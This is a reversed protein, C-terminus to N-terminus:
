PRTLILRKVSYSRQSGSQPPLGRCELGPWGNKDDIGFSKSCTRTLRAIADDTPEFHNGVLQLIRLGYESAEARRLLWEPLAGELKNKSLRLEELMPLCEGDESVELSGGLGNDTLDLVQLTSMQCLNDGDLKGALSNNQLSLAVVVCSAEITNYGSACQAGGGSYGGGIPAM